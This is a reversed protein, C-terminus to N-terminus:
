VGGRSSAWITPEKGGCEIAYSWANSPICASNGDEVL